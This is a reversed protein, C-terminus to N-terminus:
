GVEEEEEFERTFGSLNEFLKGKGIGCMKWARVTKEEFEFHGFGSIGEMKKPKLTKVLDNEVKEKKERKVKVLYVSLGKLGCQAIAEYLDKESVINKGRAVYDRLKRKVQAAVRDCSSKGNQAES